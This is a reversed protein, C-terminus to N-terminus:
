TCAVSCPKLHEVGADTNRLAIMEVAWEKHRLGKSVPVGSSYENATERGPSPWGGQCVWLLGDETPEPLSPMTGACTM